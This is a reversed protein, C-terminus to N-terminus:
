LEKFYAVPADDGTRELETSAITKQYEVSFLLQLQHMDNFCRHDMWGAMWGDMWGDIWGDM